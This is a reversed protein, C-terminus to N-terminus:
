VVRPLLGVDGDRDGQHLFFAGCLLVLLVWRYFRHPPRPSEIQRIATHM